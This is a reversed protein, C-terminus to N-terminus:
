RCPTRQRLVPYASRILAVYRHLRIVSAAWKTVARVGPAEGPPKADSRAAARTLPPRGGSCGPWWRGLRGREAGGSLWNSWTTASRPRNLATCAAPQAPLPQGDLSRSSAPHPHPWPPRPPPGTAADVSPQRGWRTGPAPNAALWEHRRNAPTGRNRTLQQSRSPVPWPRDRPQYRRASPGSRSTPPSPSTRGKMPEPQAPDQQLPM